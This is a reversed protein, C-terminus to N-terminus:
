TECEVEEVWRNPELKTTDTLSDPVAYLGRMYAYICANVCIHTCIRMNARMYASISANVCEPVFIRIYANMSMLEARMYTGLRAYLCIHGLIFLHELM